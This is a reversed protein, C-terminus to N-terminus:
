GLFALAAAAVEAPKEEHVLLKGGPIETIRANPLQQVM